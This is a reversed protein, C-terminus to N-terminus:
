KEKRFKNIEEKFSMQLNDFAAIQSFRYRVQDGLATKDKRAIVSLEEKLSFYFCVASGGFSSYVMLQKFISFPSAINFALVTLSPVVLFCYM